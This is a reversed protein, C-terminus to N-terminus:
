DESDPLSELSDGRTVAYRAEGFLECVELLFSELSKRSTFRFAVAAPKTQRKGPVIGIEGLEGMRGSEEADGVAGPQATHVMFTDPVGTESNKGHSFFLDGSGVLFALKALEPADIIPM